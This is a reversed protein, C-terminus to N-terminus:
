NIDNMNKQNIELLIDKILFSLNSLYLLIDIEYFFNEQQKSHSRRQLLRLTFQDEEQLGHERM